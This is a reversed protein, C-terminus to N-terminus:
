KKRFLLRYNNTNEVQELLVEEFESLGAVIGEKTYSFREADPSPLVGFIYLFGGEHILSPLKPLLDDFVFEPKLFHLVSRLIVLDYKNKPSGNNIWDEIKANIFNIGNHKLLEQASADIDIADVKAGNQACWLADLGDGAGMDLVQRVQNEALIKKVVEDVETRKM